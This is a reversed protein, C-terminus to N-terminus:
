WAVCNTCILKLKKEGRVFNGKAMHSGRANPRRVRCPWDTKQPLHFPCFHSVQTEEEAVSAELQDHEDADNNRDTSAEQPPNLLSAITLMTYITNPLHPIM